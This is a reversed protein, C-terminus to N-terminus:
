VTKDQLRHQESLRHGLVVIGVILAISSMAVFLLGFLKVGKFTVLRINGVVTGPGGIDLVFGVVGDVDCERGDRIVGEVSAFYGCTLMQRVGDGSDTTRREAVVSFKVREPSVLSVRVFDTYPDVAEIVTGKWPATVYTNIPYDTVVQVDSALIVVVYM